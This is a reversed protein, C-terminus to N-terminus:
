RKPYKGRPNEASYTKHKPPFKVSGHRHRRRLNTPFGEKAFIFKKPGGAKKLTGSMSARAKDVIKQIGKGKVKEKRGKNGRREWYEIVNTPFPGAVKQKRIAAIDSKSQVSLINVFPGSLIQPNGLKICGMGSSNPRSGPPCKETIRAM